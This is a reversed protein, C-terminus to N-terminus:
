CFCAVVRSFTVVGRCSSVARPRGPAAGYPKKTGSTGTVIGFISLCFSVHSSENLLICQENDDNGKKSQQYPAVEQACRRRYDGTLYEGHNYVQRCPHCESLLLKTQSGVWAATCQDSIPWISQYAMGHIGTRQKEDPYTNESMPRWEVDYDAHDHRSNHKQPNGDLFFQKTFSVRIIGCIRQMRFTDNGKNTSRGGASVRLNKSIKDHTRRRSSNM